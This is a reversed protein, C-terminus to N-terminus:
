NRYDRPLAFGPVNEQTLQPEFPGDEFVAFGFERSTQLFLQPLRTTLEQRPPKGSITGRIVNAQSEPKPFLPIPPQNWILALRFWASHHLVKPWM